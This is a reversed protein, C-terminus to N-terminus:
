KRLPREADPSGVPGAPVLCGPGHGILDRRGAAILAERTLPWQASDWYLLLAKQLKKERLGTATYVPEMTFPDLGSYYMASAMSMPTPIFDQVQRPRYGEAKLWLALDVMDELTSGPHGSIFYPIDYQEKGADQSACAFMERFREFSEIGPKKMKELVRPSAHEPAVSLQGGVHHKALENVYEPSLEALDYRVGSAIFVHKVGEEERVRKMLDIVPGHDTGLNECVGPHLCSLRRCKSEIEESRCKMKYMNATPGGLDTITGRFDGMRRLARVERLVSDSSRNQIVRGEHETISCFTCGGFCGRMLVVSHRVTEYAPIKEQYSPHPVRNFPLDYLEDMAVSREGGTGAGDELPIAPPNMYVARDGHRQLLPRGNGPNTEMQFAKAMKAYAVKDAAAQEYSPLIVPLGDTTYRSPRAELEAARERGVVYATGRIDRLESVREGAQLRRAIEWVPREGMGFVLLDAKADILVSRRVNDSWYDYHAIRRLSAEIGGLVIPVDGFAERCRNAYVITARDPRMNTRGGPSYQDEGRNKKQATLRNLMSDLNGAAVGFFLRPRGLRRFDEVSRWDPQAIIGVKFGRGELFRAILVPGFAPHDVYADGTVIVIDLESIGRSKLDAPTTPLFPFRPAPSGRGNLVPLKNRRKETAAFRSGETDGMGM